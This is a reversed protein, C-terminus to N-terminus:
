ARGSVRVQTTTSRVGDCHIEIGFQRLLAQTEECPPPSPKPRKPELTKPEKRANIRESFQLADGTKRTPRDFIPAVPVRKTSDDEDPEPFPFPIWLDPRRPKSPQDPVHKVGQRSRGKDPVSDAARSVKADVRDTVAFSDRGFEPLSYPDVLEFEKLISDPAKFSSQPSTPRSTSKPSKTSSPVTKQIVKQVLKQLASM